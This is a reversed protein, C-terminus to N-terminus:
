IYIDVLKFQIVKNYLIKYNLKILLYTMAM